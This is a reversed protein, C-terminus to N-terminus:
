LWRTFMDGVRALLVCVGIVAGFACAGLVAGCVGILFITLTM